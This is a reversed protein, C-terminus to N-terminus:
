GRADTRNFGTETILAAGKRLQDDTWGTTDLPLGDLPGGVLARYVRGPRPWGRRRGRGWQMRVPVRSAPVRKRVPEIM